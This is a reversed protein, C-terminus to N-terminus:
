AHRSQRSGLRNSGSSVPKNDPDSDLRLVGKIGSVAYDQQLAKGLEIGDVQLESAVGTHLLTFLRRLNIRHVQGTTAFLWDSLQMFRQFPEAGLILDLTFKFRGSNAILDWYRAFRNLRQMEEFGILNNCAVEYPPCPNYRMGMKESHRSIPTGRLRKLVGVQIEHPKLSVLQDFGQAFSHVTEGPLGYILDAHIHASTQQRIWELNFRTADNDQKRHILAQVEPNFSQVGIELQLAGPPFHKLLGKLQEPLRDPIVEFHLFLDSTPLQLFFELIASSARVDLNFTRDVFKFHRVGRDYLLRMQDLFTELNFPWSTKDLASLCFECKFPCGRSAEVYIVRNAIDECTYEAYPLSLQQLDPQTAPLIKDGPATGKDLQLCLQAFALDGPGCIVYDAHKVIELDHQEHSVEPGGLILTIDPRVTKLLSVLRTTQEINWIYVGFGIISPNQNLLQEAIDMPRNELTFENISTREALAGMNAKLYRLGLSAHIYRANITTLLIDPM